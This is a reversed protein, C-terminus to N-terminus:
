SLELLAMETEKESLPHYDIFTIIETDEAYKKIWRIKAIVKALRSVEEYIRRVEALDDPPPIETSVVATMMHGASSKRSILLGAGSARRGIISVEKDRGRGADRYRVLYGKVERVGKLDEYRKVENM